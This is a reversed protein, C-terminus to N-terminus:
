PPNGILDERPMRWNTLHPPCAPPLHVSMTSFNANPNGFRLDGINGQDVVPARGFQLWARVPCNDRALTRLAAISQRYTNGQNVRTRPALTLSGRRMVYDGITENKEITVFSWNFPAAAAPSVVIDLTTWGPSAPFSREVVARVWRNVGFMAVVFVVTGVLAWRSRDRPSLRMAIATAAGVGVILPLVTALSIWRTLTLLVLMAPMFLGLLMRGVRQQTNAVAAAGLM